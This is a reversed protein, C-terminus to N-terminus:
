NVDDQLRLRVLAERGDVLFVRKIATYLRQPDIMEVTERRMDVVTDGEIVVDAEAGGFIGLVLVGSPQPRGPHVALTANVVDGKGVAGTRPQVMDGEPNRGRHVDDIKEIQHCRGAIDVIDLTARASMADRISKEEIDEVRVPVARFDVTRVILGDIRVM